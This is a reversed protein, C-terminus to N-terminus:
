FRNKKVVLFVVGCLSIVMLAVYLTLSFNDSTKPSDNSETDKQDGQPEKETVPLEDSETDKQGDEVEPDKQEDKDPDKQEEKDESNDQENEPKKELQPIEATETYDCVSCKRVKEGKAEYTAAKTESWEGFTHEAKEAQEDCDECAHWHHTKDNTWGEKIIHTRVTYSGDPNQVAVYGDAENGKTVPKDYTGGSINVTGTESNVLSNESSYTGSTLNLTGTVNFGSDGTAAVEGKGKVTLEGSVELTTNDLTVTKNNLDLTIEKDIQTTTAPATDSLLTVTDGDKAAAIADEFTEYGQTGVQAKYNTVPSNGSLSNGFLALTDEGNNDAGSDTVTNGSLTAPSSETGECRGGILGVSEADEDTVSVEISEVTCGSVTNGYHISGAIGGAGDAATISVNTVSCNETIINGEGRFGIIGGINGGEASSIYSGDNGTVTCNSIKAYGEGTIFGCDWYGDIALDGKVHCNNVTGTFADGVIAAVYWSGTIDVNEVTLNSISGGIMKGFVGLRNSDSVNETTKTIKLNSITHEGGDFNGNFTDNNKYGIPLWEENNLDIDANLKIYKGSYSNGDDVSASPDGNVDDRFWKLEELNNIIYPNEKTGEGSLGTVEASVGFTFLSLMLCLALAASLLKKM